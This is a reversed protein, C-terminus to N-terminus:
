PAARRYARLSSKPDVVDVGVSTAGEAVGVFVFTGPLWAPTLAPTLTWTGAPTVEGTVEISDEGPGRVQGSLTCDEAQLDLELHTSKGSGDTHWVGWPGTLRRGNRTCQPMLRKKSGSELASQLVSDGRTIAKRASRARMPPKFDFSAPGCPDDSQADYPECARRRCAAKARYGVCSLQCTAACPLDDIRVASGSPALGRRGDWVANRLLYGATNWKEAVARLQPTEDDVALTVVVHYAEPKDYTATDGEFTLDLAMRWTGDPDPLAEATTQVVLPEGAADAEGREPHKTATVEVNCDKGMTLDLEFESRWGLQYAYETWMTRAGIKWRGAFASLDECSRDAPPAPTPAPAAKPAPEVPAPESPPPAPAPEPETRVPQTAPVAAVTRSESSGPQTALWGAVGIGAIGAMAWPWRKPAPKPPALTAELADCLAGVSEFRASPNLMMARDLATKLRQYLADGDAPHQGATTDASALPHRGTLLEQVAVAFSFQDSAAQPQQMSAEPAIYGPTGRVFGTSTLREGLGDVGADPEDATIALGFDIVRAHGQGDVMVNEPKFDRHLLGEEHAYSLARGAELLRALVPAATEQQESWARLTQGEIFQMQVFACRIETNAVLTGEGVAHVTVINPHELRALSRAERLAERVGPDAPGGLPFLKLAVTRHLAQHQARCVLGFGGAGLLAEIEHEEIRPRPAELHEHLVLQAGIADFLRRSPDVPGEGMAANQGRGGGVDFGGTLGVARSPAM